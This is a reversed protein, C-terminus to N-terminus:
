GDGGGKQDGEIAKAVLDDIASELQFDPLNKHRIVGKHDIVYITPFSRVRWKNAIKSVDPSGDFITPWSIQEKQMAKKCDAAAADVNIGLITFPKGANKKMLEREHPIMQMCPACWTAWYVIAVVKGDFQSLRIEEGDPDKGIIEPAKMGVQLHDIAFLFDDARQALESGAFDKRVDRMIEAARKKKAKTEASDAMGPMMMAFPSGEYLIEAMALRASGKTERDPSKQAVAEMFDIVAEEGVSMVAHRVQDIYRAIQPDAAHDEKLRSLAWEASKDQGGMMPFGGTLMHGLAPLAEPKGEHKNAYERFRSRFKEIPHPPMAAPNFIMAGGDGEPKKMTEHLKDMAQTWEEHAQDFEAELKDWEADAFVPQVTLLVLGICVVTAMQKIVNM